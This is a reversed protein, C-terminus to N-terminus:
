ACTRGHLLIPFSDSDGSDAAGLDAKQSRRRAQQMMLNEMVEVRRLGAKGQGAELSRLFVTGTHARTLLQLRKWTVEKGMIGHGM